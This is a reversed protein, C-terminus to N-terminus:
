QKKATKSTIRLQITDKKVTFKEMELLWEQPIAGSYILAELRDYDITEVTKIVDTWEKEHFFALLKDEDMKSSTSTILKVKYNGENFEDMEHELMVNKIEANEADCLKKYKEMMAKNEGYSKVLNELYLDEM